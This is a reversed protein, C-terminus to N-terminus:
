KIVIEECPTELPPPLPPLEQAGTAAAQLTNLAALMGHLVMNGVQLKDAFHRSGIDAEVMGPNEAEFQHLEKIAARRFEDRLETCEGVAEPTVFDLAVKIASRLNRVQHPCGSPIWVAEWEYQEFHWTDVCYPERRLLERHKATLMFCQDHLVDIVADSTLKQGKHVFPPCGPIRDELADHFFQRLRPRDERRVLDWVAGAGRYSIDAPDHAARGCRPPGPVAGERHQTHMMINVADSLDEHMKTVSDGEGQHEEERGFAVYGKPGLDPLKTYWPLMTALNLPGHTPHCYAPMCKSLMAMFDDNHRVLVSRFDSAPPFDKLKLMPLPAGSASRTDGSCDKYQKFFEKGTLDRYHDPHFNACDVISLKSSTAEKCVRGMGDPTWGMQGYFGRVIIPEGRGWLLQFLRVTRTYNRHSPDFESVHPTWLYDQMGRSSCLRVDSEPLGEVVWWYQGELVEDVLTPVEPHLGLLPEAPPPPPSHPQVDYAAPAAALGRGANVAEQAFSVPDPEASELQRRSAIRKRKGRGEEDSAAPATPSPAPQPSAETRQQQLQHGVPQHQQPPPLHSEHLQQQPLHLEHPQQVIRRADKEQQPQLYHQQGSQPAGNSDPQNWLQSAPGPLLYGSAEPMTIARSQLTAQPLPPAAVYGGNAHTHAETSQLLLAALPQAAHHAWPVQQQQQAQQEAPTHAVPHYAATSGSAPFALAGNPLAPLAFPKDPQVFAGPAQWGEQQTSRELEEVWAPQAEAQKLSALGQQQLWGQLAQQVQQPQFQAQQQRQQQQQEFPAQQQRQQQQHEVPAQQQRQQQQQEAPAQQQRQQQQREAPAQQRQEQKGASPQPSGVLQRPPRLVDVTKFCDVLNLSQLWDAEVNHWRGTAAGGDSGVCLKRLLAPRLRRAAGQASSSISGSAGLGLAAALLEEAQLLQQLQSDELVRMPRMKSHCRRCKVVAGHHPQRERLERVCFPCLDEECGEKACHFHLNELCTGCRNCLLRESHPVSEGDVVGVHTESVSMLSTGAAAAEEQHLRMISKVAPLLKHALHYAFMIQQSPSFAPEPPQGGLAKLTKSRCAARVCIRLCCPCTGQCFARFLSHQPHGPGFALVYRYLERCTFCYSKTCSGGQCCVKYCAAQCDHCSTIARNGAEAMLQQRKGDERADRPLVRTLPGEPPFWHCVIPEDPAPVASSALLVGAPVGAPAAAVAAATSAPRRARGSGKPKVPQQKPQKPQKPKHGITLRDPQRRVRGRQAPPQQHQQQDETAPALLAADAAPSATRAVQGSAADELKFGYEGAYPPAAGAADGAPKSGGGGVRRKKAPPECQSEQQAAQLPGHQQADEQPPAQGQQQQRDASLPQGAAAGAPKRANEILKVATVRQSKQLAAKVMAQPDAAAAVLNAAQLDAAVFPVKWTHPFCNAAHMAALRVSVAGERQGHRSRVLIGNLTAGPTGWELLRQLYEAPHDKADYPPAEGVVQDLAAKTSASTTGANLHRVSPFLRTLCRWLTRLRESPSDHRGKGLLLMGDVLAPADKPAM